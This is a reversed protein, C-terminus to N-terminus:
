AKKEPTEGLIVRFGLKSFFNYYLPYLTNVLFSKSIAIVPADHKLPYEPIYKGFVLQQRIQVLNSSTKPTDNRDKDLYYKNCAGGFPIKREEIQIINIKANATV